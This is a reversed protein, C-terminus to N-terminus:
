LGHRIAYAAAQTRNHLQLKRLLNSIHNRVTFPSIVLEDAIDENHRGRALLRLIEIERATLLSAPLDNPSPGPGNPRLRAFLRSAVETSMITEGRAAAEVGAIVTDPSSGKVLYGCSGSLMAEAVNDEDASVTLIVVAATPASEAIRRTTELGSLGPMQLDMLVVDPAHHAVAELAAEGDAADAVVDFGHQRLMTALGERFGDHDDVVLVTTGKQATQDVAPQASATESEVSNIVTDVGKEVCQDVRM